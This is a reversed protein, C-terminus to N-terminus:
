TTSEVAQAVLRAIEEPSHKSSDISISALARGWTIEKELADSKIRDFSNRATLRNELMVVPADIEIVYGHPFRALFQDVVPARLLLLTREGPEFKPLGYRHDFIDITGLFSNSAAMAEFTEENVFIHDIDSPGRQPRTTVTKQLHYGYTEQLIKAVTSKGAGSPGILGIITM